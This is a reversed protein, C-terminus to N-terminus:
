RPGAAGHGKNLVEFFILKGEFLEVSAKLYRREDDRLRYEVDWYLLPM